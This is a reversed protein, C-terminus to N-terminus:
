VTPPTDALIDYTRVNMETSKANMRPYFRRYEALASLFVRDM